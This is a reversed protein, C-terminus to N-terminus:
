VLVNLTTMIFNYYNIAGNDFFLGCSTVKLIQRFYLIIDEDNAILYKKEVTFWLGIM